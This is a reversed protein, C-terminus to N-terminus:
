RENLSLSEGQSRKIFISDEVMSLGLSTAYEITLNRNTDILDLELQSIVSRTETIMEEAEQRAATNVVTKHVFYGYFLISSAITIILFWFCHTQSFPLKKTKTQYQNNM